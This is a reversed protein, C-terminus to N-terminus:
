KYNIELIKDITIDKTHEIKEWKNQKRQSTCAIINIPIWSLIFIPMTLIGKLYPLIRKKKLKIAVVSLCISILYSVVITTLKGVYNMYMGDLLGIGFHLIFSAIGLFQVVPSLLFIFIDIATFNDKKFIKKFLKKAYLNLCQITGISWRKRQKWSEEFTTPQEDYTIAEEVFAIKENNIACKATLEIDETLTQANYGQRNILNKSIMFGTGNIFSSKELNMRAKNLFVNQILYHISYCSSIWTDSINKSDRFGQAIEYGAELTNNMKSIFKPHVINDADFIIYAEYDYKSLQNFAIRLADGKSKVPTNCEIVQVDNKLCIEKTSDTCNNIAVFVDYLEQPYEQKNLSKLLNGIVKEENRAPIIVAFKHKKKSEKINNRSKLVCLGTIIYFVLYAATGIDVIKLIEEVLKM